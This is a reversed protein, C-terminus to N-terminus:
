VAWRAMHGGRASCDGPRSGSSGGADDSDSSSTSAASHDCTVGGSGLFGDWMGRGAGHLGQQHTQPQRPPQLYQQQEMQGTQLLLQHQEQLPLQQQQQELQMPPQPLIRRREHQQPQSMVRQQGQPMCPPALRPQQQMQQQALVAMQQLPQHRSHQRTGSRPDHPAPNRRKEARRAKSLATVHGNRSATAGMTVFDSLQDADSGSGDADADQSSAFAAWDLRPVQQQQQQEPQSSSSLQRPRMWAHGQEQDHGSKAAAELLVVDVAAGRAAHQKNLEQIVRRVDSARNSVAHVTRFSQKAGCIVCAFRKSAKDQTVQFAQCFVCQLGLFTQPM